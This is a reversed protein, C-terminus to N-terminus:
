RDTATILKDEIIIHEIIWTFVFELLERIYKDQDQDIDQLQVEEIKSVFDDHAVKQRFFKPSKIQMMYEEEAKFHYKAYEKLEQIIAMIKDYKDELLYNELMNYIDNGIEFLRQHQKDIHDVGISYEDKWVLMM